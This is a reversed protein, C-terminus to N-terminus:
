QEVELVKLSEIGRDDVIKVALRKHDGPEFPLSVTGSYAEIRDEDIEAKLNKALKAWGEKAGAMPLFVQRPYLSRGDYDTDLMWMAIKSTDGSEIRGKKTNYYDFGLVEVRWKGKDRGKNVQRLVVDPQGILWFSENSSRKKKLDDTLLDTNMQSKLFTMGTKAPTLEDIDKGAEPDFQFAAFLLIEPKPNLTRAEEWAQEVQRQELPAHVPGFSIVVRKPQDEKTEAEAHLYRTGALPEVRTFAIKQGGRGRIGAKLLEDRWEEHRLTAGSRAVSVDSAPQDEVEDIPKVTPSPVAEVTFPGTVRARADDSLPADHLTEQGPPDNRAISGLTVHPVTRYAFGSRVGEDPHALRYYDFLRTMLRQKTLTVAVRSTDCTIWRRGWNEAVHATTGSGCTPDFVLDGPETSMLMCRQVVVPNTEVVYRKTETFGGATDLWMNAMELVPYDEFFLVYYLKQGLAILRRREILRDMGEPNTKWSKGKTPWYTKGEFEVPFVCSETRGASTLDLRRFPRAGKPLLGVDFKEERTMKRRTGGPLEVFTFETHKGLTRPTYLKQFKISSIDKAYWILYDCIGALGSTRLPIKTKFPIVAFLNRVGFVEGMISSVLHLNKDSIQLFCSGTDSLLDKALILRDRLYSLYSHIGLARNSIM